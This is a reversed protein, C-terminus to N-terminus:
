SCMIKKANSSYKKIFKGMLVNGISLLSYVIIYYISIKDISENTIKLFYAVLFTSIFVSTLSYFLDSVILLKANKGIRNNM